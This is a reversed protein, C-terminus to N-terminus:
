GANTGMLPADRALLEEMRDPPLPRSFYAGQGLDCDLERLRSVQEETEIGEGIVEARLAHCVEILARVIAEGEASETLEHVFSSDIKVRDIPFRRLHNLSSYGTGFDDLTIGVGIAELDKMNSAATEVNDMVAEETIEVSLAQPELGSGALASAAEDALRLRRQQLERASLNVSLIRAPQQGAEAWAAAQECATALIWRGLPLILGTEEAVPVFELPDVVGREPHQWRLLAEYGVVRADDLSVTPQYELFFEQREVAHRLEAELGLRLTPHPNMEQRFMEVRARGGDKARHVAVDANQLVDESRDRGGRGIAIGISARLTLEHGEVEFPPGLANTLRDAVANAEAPSRVTELLVMFEDDGTRAVTDEPRLCSDLRAAADRLLQDGIAPGLSDNVLKFRDIDVSLVACSQRRRVSRALARELRDRLLMRNPLKTLEDHFAQQEFRRDLQKQEAPPRRRAILKWAVLCFVGVVLADLLVILLWSM